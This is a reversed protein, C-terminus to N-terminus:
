LEIFSGKGQYGKLFREFNKLDHGPGPVFEALVLFPRGGAADPTTNLWNQLRM